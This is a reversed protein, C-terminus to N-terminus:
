SGDDEEEDIAPLENVPHAVGAKMQLAKLDKQSMDPDIVVLRPCAGLLGEGVVDAFTSIDPMEVFQDVQIM